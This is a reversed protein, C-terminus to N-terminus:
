PNLRGDYLRAFIGIFAAITCLHQTIPLTSLFVHHYTYPRAQQTDHRISSLFTSDVYNDAYYLKQNSDYLVKRFIPRASHGHTRRQPGDM